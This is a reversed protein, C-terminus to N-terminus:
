YLRQLENAIAPGYFYKFGTDNPHVDDALLAKYNTANIGGRAFMNLTPIGKSHGFAEVADAYQQVLAEPYNHMYGNSVLLIHLTPKATLYTEVIWRLNGNLTGSTVPDGIQGIPTYGVDNTALQIILIDTDAVNDALTGGDVAGIGFVACTEGNHNPLLYTSDFTGLTGGVAPNGYCQFATATTRGPVADQGAEVVGLRATVVKQWAYQFMPSSISDGQIRM